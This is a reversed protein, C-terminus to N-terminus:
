IPQATGRAMGHAQSTQTRARCRQTRITEITSFSPTRPVFFNTAHTPQGCLTRFTTRKAASRSRARGMPKETRTDMTGRGAGPGRTGSALIMGRSWAASQRINKKQEDVSSFLDLSADNDGRATSVSSVAVTCRDDGRQSARTPAASTQLPACRQHLYTESPKKVESVHCFM